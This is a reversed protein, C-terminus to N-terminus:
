IPLGGKALSLQNRTQRYIETSSLAKPSNNYQYYKIDRVVETESHGNDVPVAADQNKEVGVAAQNAKDYIVASPISRTKMLRDLEGTGKKVNTLDLVPTITPTIDMEGSVVDAVGSISKKITDLADSGVGEAAKTVLHAYNKMGVAFGEDTAKGVKIFEKSPSAIGLFDLASNLAAKAVEKAKSAVKAIGAGLGKVMGEIIALALDGGAEGMAKSNDKISKTMGRIFSLVLDVGAQIIRPLNDSIGKLFNVIINTAATIVKGINNAIGDLFGILIKAGSDVMKPVNAILYDLILVILKGLSELLKPAIADVGELIAIAIKVVAKVIAPAADGIVQIFLVLALGLNQILMPILGIFAGVMAVVAATGAAGAISLATLGAAFLFVGVGALAMGAGILAVAGALGLLAPVLPGLLLGAVGLVAFVGALTVLGKVIEGWSMNGLVKLVGTLITLAGAVIVLAAAGSLTGSMVVLAGSILILSGALVTLGKAIEVWSMGGMQQMADAIHGLAVAVIAVGAASLPAWPPILALATGILLLSTALVAMGKGVNEWSIGSLSHM